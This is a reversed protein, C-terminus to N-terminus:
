SRQLQPNDVKMGVVARRLLAREMKSLQKPQTEQSRDIHDPDSEAQVATVPMPLPLPSLPPSLLPLPLQLPPLSPVGENTTVAPPPSSTLTDSMHNPTSPGPSPRHDPSHDVVTPTASREHYMLLSERSLSTDNENDNENENDNDLVVVHPAPEPLEPGDELHSEFRRHFSESSAPDHCYLSQKTYQTTSLRSNPREKNCESASASAGSIAVASKKMSLQGHLHGEMSRTHDLYASSMPTARGDYRRPIAPLSRSTQYTGQHLPADYTAHHPDVHPGDFQFRNRPSHMPGLTDTAEDYSPPPVTSLFHQDPSSSSSSLMAHPDRSTHPFEGLIGASNPRSSQVASGLSDLTSQRQEERRLRSAEPSINPLATSIPRTSGSGTSTSGELPM